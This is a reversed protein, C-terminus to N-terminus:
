SNVKLCLIIIILLDVIHFILNFSL